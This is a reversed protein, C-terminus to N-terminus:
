AARNLIVELVLKSGLFAVLLMAMGGLSWKVAKPGRWGYRWRGYLVVAFVVWALVSLLTKHALDQELLDEVFLGGTVLAVTLVAFGLLLMQFFLREMVLLPPLLSLLGSEGSGRLTKDQVVLMLGQTATLILIAFAILSLGAHLRIQWAGSTLVTIGPGLTVLLLVSIAAFPMLIFGPGTLGRYVSMLLFLCVALWSILCLSHYLSLNWGGGDAQALWILLAQAVAAVAAFRQMWDAGTEPQRLRQVLAGTALAYLVAIALSLYLMPRM